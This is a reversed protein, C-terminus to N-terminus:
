IIKNLNSIGRGHINIYNETKNSYERSKNFESRYVKYIRKNFPKPLCKSFMKMFMKIFMKIFMKMFIKMFIKMFM